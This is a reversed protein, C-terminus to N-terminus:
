PVITIVTSEEVAAEGQQVVIRVLYEGPQFSALPLTAVYPIRGKDDPAPLEPMGRAVAEGNMQLEMMMQPKEAKAPDPYVVFYLGLRAEPGAQIPDGLNPVIKVKEYLLPNDSEEDAPTLPDVRRILTIDSMRLSLGAPVMLAARRASTKKTEDDVVAMELTYRGPKARFNRMFVVNGRKLAELRDLPGELPYDQSFKAVVEGQENKLLAMLAFRTTYVQRDRDTAFAFNSLPVEMTLTHQIGDPNPGFRLAQSHFKFDVPLPDSSLAALLPMEYPFLTTGGASPPMAFYGSRAQVAVDSRNVKVQIARFKGDYKLDKPMYSIEYYGRIDDSVYQMGRRLDNTNAILFGGTSTSLESLTGQVDMRLSSEAKEGIMVQDRTVVGTGQTQQGQSTGAAQQLMDRSGTTRGGTTLGRADVAYFSVNAKNSESITTQFLSVWNPPVVLGESFYMVTKRGALSRQERILSLLAFLSTQGQQEREMAESYQLAGVTMRALAAEAFADGLGTTAPNERGLAAVHSSTSLDLAAIKELEQKIANSQSTFQLYTGGTARKVAEQLMKRDNTFQQLVHLRRDITFVAILVNERLETKLFDQAARAALGRGDVGLREFVLTVLNIHRLPDVGAPLTREAAEPLAGTPEVLRFSTVEQKVGDEFLEIDEPKIDAVPRGRKDRVVVDLVVADAVTRVVPEERRQGTSSSQGQMAPVSQVLLLFAIPIIVITRRM